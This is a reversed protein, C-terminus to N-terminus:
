GYNDGIFVHSRYRSRTRAWLEKACIKGKNYLELDDSDIGYFHQSRKMEVNDSNNDIGIFYSERDRNKIAENDTNDFVHKENEKMLVFDGDRWMYKENTFNDFVCPHTLIKNGTKKDKFYDEKIKKKFESVQRGAQDYNKVIKLTIDSYLMKKSDGYSQCTKSDYKISFGDECIKYIINSYSNNNLTYVSIGSDSFYIETSYSNKRDKYFGKFSNRAEVVKGYNCIFVIRGILERLLINNDTMDEIKGILNAVASNNKKSLKSHSQRASRFTDDDIGLDRLVIERDLPGFKRYIYNTLFENYNMLREM